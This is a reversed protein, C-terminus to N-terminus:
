ASDGDPDRLLLSALDRAAELKKMAKKTHNQKLSGIASEITDMVERLTVNNTPIDKVPDNQEIGHIILAAHQRFWDQGNPTLRDWTGVLYPSM